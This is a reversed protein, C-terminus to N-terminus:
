LNSSLRTSYFANEKRCLDDAMVLPALTLLKGTHIHSVDLGCESWEDFGIPHSYFGFSEWSPQLPSSTERRWIERARSIEEPSEISVSHIHYVRINLYSRDVLSVRPMDFFYTTYFLTWLQAGRMWCPNPNPYPSRDPSRRVARGISLAHWTRPRRPCTHLWSQDGAMDTLHRASEVHAGILPSNQSSFCHHRSIM